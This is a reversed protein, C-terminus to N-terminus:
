KGKNILRTSQSSRRHNLKYKSSFPRLPFCYRQNVSNLNPSTLFEYEKDFSKQDFDQIKMNITPMKVSQSNNVSINKENNKLTSNLKENTIDLVDVYRIISDDQRRTDNIEKTEMKNRNTEITNTAQINSINNKEPITILLEKFDQTKLLHRNLLIKERTQVTMPRFFEQIQFIYLLFIIFNFFFSFM